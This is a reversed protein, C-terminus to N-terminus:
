NKMFNHSEIFSGWYITLVYYGPSLSSINLSGYNFGQISTKPIKLQGFPSFVAVQPPSSQAGPPPISSPNLVININYSAPNPSVTFYKAPVPPTPPLLPNGDSFTAVFNKWESWGCIGKARCRLEIKDPVGSTFRLILSQGTATNVSQIYGQSLFSFRGSINEWEWDTATSNGPISASALTLPVTIESSNHPLNVITGPLYYDTGYVQGLATITPPQTSVQVNKSISQNNAFSALITTTGWIAGKVTVSNATQSVIQLNSPVSWSVTGTMKCPDISYTHLSNDICVTADGAIADQTVPFSPAQPIPPHTSDGLEKLLWNISEKTFFIHDRNVAEGFYSDFPTQGTCVLNVNLPEHWNAFGNTDLASHTPIFAHPVVLGEQTSPTRMDKRLHMTTLAGISEEKFDNISNALGGSVVDLSGLSKVTQRSVAESIWLVPNVAAASVSYIRGSQGYPYQYNQVSSFLNINWGIRVGLIKISFDIYGRMDLATQGPSAEQLGSLSGNTIAIKRLNIPYGKSNPLGNSDLNTHYNTFYPSPPNTSLQNIAEENHEILMERIAPALLKEDYSKKAKEQGRIYGLFYTSGQISLPVNAGQHPSDMSVWLRTNHSWTADGTAQQQKEMYALAYRTIQGGMSPGVVVAKETISRTKMSANLDKLFSAFTMANREIFDAGYDQLVENYDSPNRDTPLNIVIVDFGNQQLATIIDILEENSGSNDKYSMLKRISKYKEPIFTDTLADKNIEQCNDDCDELEIKRKDGPDFGDIVVFPKKVRDIGCVGTQNTNAYFIKYELKGYLPATETWAQYPINSTYATVSTKICDTSVTAIKNHM